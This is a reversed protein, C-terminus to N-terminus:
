FDLLASEDMEESESSGTKTERVISNEEEGEEEEELDRRRHHLSVGLDFSSSRRNRQSRVSKLATKSSSKPTLNSTALPSFQIRTYNGSGMGLEGLVSKPRQRDEKLLRTRLTPPTATTSDSQKDRKLKDVLEATEKHALLVLKSNVKALRECEKLIKVNLAKSERLEKELALIRPRYEEEVDEKVQPLAPVLKTGELVIELEKIQTQLSSILIDKESDSRPAEDESLTNPRSSLKGQLSAIRLQATHLEQRLVSSPMSFNLHSPTGPTAMSTPNSSSAIPTASGGRPSRTCPTVPRPTSLLSGSGDEHEGRAWKDDDGDDGDSDSHEGDSGQGRVVLQGIEKLRDELEEIRDEMVGAAASGQQKQEERQTERSQLEQVLLRLADAESRYKVLLAQAEESSEPADIENMKASLQVKKIRKAFNITSLSEEVASATQNLTAVVAIRSNGSLSNQLIRTLKSDRYPIHTSTTTSTNKESLAFIVKGLTLLSKNINAGEARREKGGKTVYKESGALDVLALESVRVKRKKEADDAGREWSEVVIRFATHSRSSRENWDTANVHRNKQGRELLRFIADPSTVIAEALPAVFTGKSATARIQPVNAPELLDNVGENYVEVWSCRVLWERHRSSSRIGKFLDRVAKQTIGEAKTKEDGSLTFTKGSATQGYAFILANFGSLVSRVLPRALTRYLDDNSSGTHLADFTHPGAGASGGASRNAALHPQLSLSSTLPNPVWASQESSLPRLRLHVTVSDTPTSTNSAPDDHYTFSTDDDPPLSSHSASRSSSSSMSIGLGHERDDHPSTSSPTTSPLGLAPQLEQRRVINPKPPSSNPNQKRRPSVGQTVKAKFKVPSAPRSTSYVHPSDTQSAPRSPTPTPTPTATTSTAYVHSHSQSAEPRSIRPASLKIPSAPRALPQFSSTPRSQPQSQSQSQIPTGTRSYQSQPPVLPSSRSSSGVGDNSSSSSGSSGSRNSNSHADRASARTFPRFPEKNNLRPSVTITDSTLHAQPQPSQVTM